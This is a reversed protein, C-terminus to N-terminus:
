QKQLEDENIVETADKERTVSISSSTICPLYFSRHLLSLSIPVLFEPPVGTFGGMQCDLWFRFIFMCSHKRYSPLISTKKVTLSIRNTAPCINLGWLLLLFFVGKFMQQGPFFPKLRLTLSLAPLVGYVLIIVVLGAHPFFVVHLLYTCM